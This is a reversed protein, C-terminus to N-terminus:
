GRSELVAHAVDTFGRLDDALQRDREAVDIICRAWWQQDAQAGVRKQSPESSGVVQVRPRVRDYRHVVLLPDFPPQYPFERNYLGARAVWSPPDAADPAVIEGVHVGLVLREQAHGDLAIESPAPTEPRVAAGSLDCDGITRRIRRGGPLVGAYGHVVKITTEAGNLSIHHNGSELRPLWAINSDRDVNLLVPEGDIVAIPSGEGGDLKVGPLGAALFTRRSPGPRLGGVFELTRVVHDSDTGPQRAGLDDPLAEVPVDLVFAWGSPLEGDTVVEGLQELGHQGLERRPGLISVSGDVPWRDAEIYGGLRHRLMPYLDDPEFVVPSGQWRFRVGHSLVDSDLPLGHALYLSNDGASTELRVVQGDEDRMEAAIPWGGPRPATLVLRPTPVLQLYLKMDVSTRPGMPTHSSLRDRILRLITRENAKDMLFAQATEDLGVSNGARRAIAILRADDFEAPSATTTARVREVLRDTDHQRWRVQSIPYGVHRPSPDEPLLITGVATSPDSNRREVWEELWSWWISLGDYGKPMGTGPLDMLQRYRRYYNHAAASETRHMQKAAVVTAMLVPLVPPAEAQKELEQPVDQKSDSDQESAERARRFRIHWRYTEKALSGSYIGVDENGLYTKAAWVLSETGRDDGRSAALETIRSETLDFFFTQGALRGSFFEDALLNQWDDYRLRERNAM